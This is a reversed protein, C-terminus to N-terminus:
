RVNLNSFKKMFAEIDETTKIIDKSLNINGDKTILINDEIRIGIEEDSIYVGPEVTFIMGPEIVRDNNGIDHVDLGLFHSVGHYCYKVLESDSKILGIRTLEELLVKKSTKNLEEIPLGPKMIEIVAAQAKLVIDYIEKQRTTFKGNAPYTRSIDASYQNYQAGLDLLILSNDSVAKNNDVYHLIFSDAGSVAITPFSNGDAGNMRISHAFTAEVQYEMVGPKLIELISELGEKTIDIAKQVESIEFDSKLTRLDALIPHASAIKLFLYKEMLKKGFKHPLSHDENAKVKELDLYISSVKSNYILTNVWNDFEEIYKISEIGSIATAQENTLKRGHWKEVDYNPKEIFLITEIKCDKKKYIALNFNANKLGTMYFFNKNPLFTYTADATSKPPKGSFLVLMEGANLKTM